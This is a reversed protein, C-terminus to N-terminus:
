QCVQTEIDVLGTLFLADWDLESLKRDNILMRAIKLFKRQYESLDELTRM